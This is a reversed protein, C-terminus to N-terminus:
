LDSSNLSKADVDNTSLSLRFWLRFLDRFDDFRFDIITFFAFGLESDILALSAVVITLWFAAETGVAVRVNARHVVMLTVARVVWVLQNGAAWDAFDFDLRSRHDVM